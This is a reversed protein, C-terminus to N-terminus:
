QTVSQFNSISIHMHNPTKLPHGAIVIRRTEQFIFEDDNWHPNITKLVRAVRNHERVFLTHILALNPQENVRADGLISEDKALKTVLLLINKEFSNYIFDLAKNM